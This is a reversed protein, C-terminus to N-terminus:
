SSTKGRGEVWLRAPGSELLGAAAAINAAEIRMKDPGNQSLAFDRLAALMAPTKAFRAVFLAFERGALDGRELLVPALTELYPYRQPIQDSPARPPRKRASSRRISFNPPSNPTLISKPMWYQFSFPWPAHREGVPRKLDTLTERTM